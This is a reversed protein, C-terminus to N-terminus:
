WRCAPREYRHRDAQFADRCGMEFDVKLQNVEMALVGNRCRLTWYNGAIRCSASTSFEIIAPPDSLRLM